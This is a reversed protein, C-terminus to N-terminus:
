KHCGAISDMIAIFCLTIIIIFYKRAALFNIIKIDYVVAARIYYKNYYKAYYYYDKGTTGSKRISRALIPISHNM